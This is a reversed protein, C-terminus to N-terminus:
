KYLVGEVSVGEVALPGGEGSSFAKSVSPHGGGELLSALSDLRTGVDNENPIYIM